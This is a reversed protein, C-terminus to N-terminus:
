WRRVPRVGVCGELHVPENRPTRNPGSLAVEDRRLVGLDIVAARSLETFQRLAAIAGFQDLNRLLLDDFGPPVDPFGLYVLVRRHNKLVDQLQRPQCEPGPRVHAVEYMPSGDTSPGGGQRPGQFPIEGYWWIAPWGGITTMLADGPRRHSMLWRVAGRDDLGHNANRPGVGLGNKALRFIDACLHFEVVVVIIALALRRWERSRYADRGSRIATDILLAVGAYLAPVVWVFFREFVPIFGFAAFLFASLPVMAFAAGLTRKVSFAFGCTASLWLSVWLATGAPNRALPELRDVLWRTTTALGASAPVMEAAWHNRLYESHYTHRLSLEYHLGFSVLWILGSLSSILAARRGDRRWILGSLLLACAPTVLLAGNAFWQGAAAAAWWIATRRIRDRSRDTEIAWIALAPLLLGCLTDASYHKVEFRYHSVWVGFSCLFVFVAAAARGMWRRGVWVATVITAIGFLVPVLRLALEGTGLTLVAARQVILWGLPASQGLWLPGALEVVSRDRINIAIMEEDLWLPLAASWRYLDRGIGALAISLVAGHQISLWHRRLWGVLRLREWWSWEERLTGSGGMLWTLGSVGLASLLAILVANRPNRSSIRLPGLRGAFGGTLAVMVVWIATLAGLILLARRLLLLRDRNVVTGIL